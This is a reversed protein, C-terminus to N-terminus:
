ELRREVGVQVGSWEHGSEVQREVGSQFANEVGSQVGSEVSMERTEWKVKWDM